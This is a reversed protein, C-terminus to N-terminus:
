GILFRKAMIKGMKKVNVCLICLVNVFVVCPDVAMCKVHVYM